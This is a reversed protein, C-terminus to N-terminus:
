YRPLPVRRGSDRRAPVARVVGCLDKRLAEDSLDKSADGVVLNIGFGKARTKLVAITQPAVGSDAFFTRKKGNSGTFAMVMGEAAATAEDLLSANAIDMATM